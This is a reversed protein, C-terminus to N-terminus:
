RGALSATRMRLFSSERECLAAGQAGGDIDRQLGTRATARSRRTARLQQAICANRPHKDSHTIGMGERRACAEFQQLCSSDFHLRAKQLVFRARQVPFEKGFPILRSRSAPQLENRRKPAAMMAGAVVPM